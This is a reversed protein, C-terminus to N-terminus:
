VVSKSLYEEFRHYFLEKWDPYSQDYLSQLYQIDETQFPEKKIYVVAEVGEQLSVSYVEQFHQAIKSHEDTLENQLITIVQQTGEQLHTQVPVTTVVIDSDFFETPFGDRLDVHAVPELHLSSADPLYLKKLIDDNLVRSSSLCYIKKEKQISRLYRDLEKLENIDSRHRAVYRDKQCIYPNLMILSNGAYVYATNYLFCMGMLVCLYVPLGKKGIDSLFLFLLLIPLLFIWYHHVGPSQVYFFYATATIEFVVCFVLLPLYEKHKFIILVASVILIALLLIGLHQVFTKYKSFLDGVNYAVYIESYDVFLVRQIFGNFFMVLALLGIMGVKLYSLIYTKIESKGQRKLRWHCFSYGAGGFIFGILYFCYYRRLLAAAILSAALALSDINTIRYLGDSKYFIWMSCVLPVFAAIGPYGALMPQMFWPMLMIVAHFILFSYKSHSGFWVMGLMSLSFVAPVAFMAYVLMMYDVFRGQTFQLPWALMSPIWAGYDSNISTTYVHELVSFADTRYQNELDLAQQYYKGYDWYYVFQESSVAMYIFVGAFLYIVSVAALNWKPVPLKKIVEFRLLPYAIFFYYIGALILWVFM